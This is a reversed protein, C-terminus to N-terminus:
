RTGAGATAPTVKKAPVVSPNEAAKILNHYIGIAKSIHEDLAPKGAEWVPLIHKETNFLEFDEHPDPTSDRLEELARIYHRSIEAVAARKWFRKDGDVFIYSPSTHALSGRKGSARLAFWASAEPKLTHQLRIGDGTRTTGAAVVEGHVVLELRTLEDFGPNARAVANIEVVEGASIDFRNEDMNGNADFTIVPGNTVFSRGSRWASFWAQPSFGNGVKVYTRETGIVDMYPYDSGAGALLEYGLNLFNYLHRTDLGGLQLIELFDVHGSPVDLALGRDLHFLDGLGLHAYGFLGGDSHIKEAITHYVYYNERQWHFAKGNLGITHGRHGSRPTEQGPVLTHAGSKYQGADGFAYQPFHSTAVNAMQLLNSVHLDEARTFNLILPNESADPRGIHIHDDGSYWGAAPMDIWRELQLRLTTTRGADIRVRRKLIRYEPGKSIVLEYDGAALDVQYDGNVFFVYRGKGPWLTNSDLLPFQKVKEAYRMVTLAAAGALPSSGEDDYLGVRASDPEGGENAISLELRGQEENTDRAAEIHLRLDCLTIEADLAADYPHTAGLAGISFDTGEYRRNAFRARALNVSTSLWPGSTQADFVVKRTAPKIVHDYAINFGGTTRRDFLLEVTVDVDTDFAISDDVDFLFYPGKLCERGEIVTIGGPPRWVVAIYGNHADFNLSMTRVIAPDPHWDHLQKGLPHDIHAVGTTNLLLLILCVVIREPIYRCSQCSARVSAFGM